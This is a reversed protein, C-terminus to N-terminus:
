RVGAVPRMQTDCVGGVEVNAVTGPDRCQAGRDKIRCTLAVPQGDKLWTPVKRYRGIESFRCGPPIGLPVCGSSPRLQVKRGDVVFDPYDDVIRVVDRAPEVDVLFNRFRYGGGTPQDVRIRSNAILAFDSGRWAVAGSVYEVREHNPFCRGMAPAHYYHRVTELTSTSTGPFIAALDRDHGFLIREIDGVNQEYMARYKDYSDARANGALDDRLFCATLGSIQTQYEDWINYQTVASSVGQFDGAGSCGQSRRCQEKGRNRISLAVINRECAGYASCGRDLHGEFIATRLTYDLHKAGQLASFSWQGDHARIFGDWARALAGRRGTLNRNAAACDTSNHFARVMRDLDGQGRGADPGPQGVRPPDFFPAKELAYLKRVDIVSRVSGDCHHNPVSMSRRRAFTQRFQDTSAPTATRSDVVVEFGVYPTGEDDTLPQGGRMVLCPIVSTGQALTGARPSPGSRRFTEVDYYPIELPGNFEYLTMLPTAPIGVARSPLLLALLVVTATLQRARSVTRVLTATYRLPSPTSKGGRCDSETMSREKEDADDM